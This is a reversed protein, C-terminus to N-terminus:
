TTQTPEQETDSASSEAQVSPKEPEAQEAVAAVAATPAAPEGTEAEDGASDSALDSGEADDRAEKVPSEDDATTEETVESLFSLLVDSQETDMGEIKM